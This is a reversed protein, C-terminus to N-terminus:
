KRCSGRVMIKKGKATKSKHRAVWTMNEKDCSKKSKPKSEKSKSRSKKKGLVHRSNDHDMQCVARGAMNYGVVRGPMGWISCRM